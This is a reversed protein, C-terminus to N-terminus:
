VVASADHAPTVNAALNDPREFGVPGHVYADSRLPPSDPARFGGRADSGGAKEKDERGVL